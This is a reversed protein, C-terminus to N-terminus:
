QLEEVVYMQVHDDSEEYLVEPNKIIFLMEDPMMYGYLQRAKAIIYDDTDIVELESELRSYQRFLRDREIRLDTVRVELASTSANVENIMMIGLSIVVFLACVLALPRVRLVLFRDLLNGPVRNAM